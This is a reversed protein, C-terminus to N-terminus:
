RITRLVLMLPKTSPRRDGRRDLFQRVEASAAPHPNAPSYSVVVAAREPRARGPGGMKALMAAVQNATGEPLPKRVDVSGKGAAPKPDLNPIGLLRSLRTLAAPLFPAGVLTELNGSGAKDEAGLATLLQAVDDPTLAETFIMLETQPRKKLQDVAFADTLVAVGRAKLAAQVRDLARPTAKCFLDLRILEDKRMEDALKARASEDAALDHVTFLRSVRIKDLQFSEIEPLERAPATEIPRVLRPEPGLEPGVSRPGVAVAEIPVAVDTRPRPAPSDGRPTPKPQVDAPPKGAKDTSASAVRSPDEKARHNQSAAFYLYSGASVMLLVAAATVINAWVPLATWDRRRTPPLPTPTRGRITALVNETLDPPAPVRPLRRLRDADAKLEAFLVRASESERLLWRVVKAEAPTLQGDVAATLLERYNAVNM